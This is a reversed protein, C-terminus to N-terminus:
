LAGAAVFLDDLQQETLGLAATMGAVLTSDREVTTAYEWEIKAAGGAQNIAADVTDLLDAGLLALRAQRMSVASPIVAPPDPPATLTTGDLLWGIGGDTAEILNPLFDLSEVEITNIVKGNEIQHARM